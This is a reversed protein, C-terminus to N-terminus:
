PRLSNRQFERPTCAFAARFSRSLRAGSSFGAIKAIQGITHQGEADALLTRVLAMRREKLTRGFSTGQGRMVRSLYRPSIGVRRAIDDMALEPNGLHLDIHALIQAFRVEGMSQRAGREGVQASIMRGMARLLMELLLSADRPQIQDGTRFLVGILEAALRCDASDPAFTLANLGATESCHEHVLHSPVLAFINRHEGREGTLAEIYFPNSSDTIMVTDPELIKLGTSCSISLQGREILWLVHFQKGGERIHRQTRRMTTTLRARLSFIPVPLSAGKELTVEGPAADRAAGVEGSYIEEGLVQAFTSGLFEPVSGSFQYVANGM